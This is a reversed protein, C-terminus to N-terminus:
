KEVKIFIVSKSDKRVSGGCPGIADQIFEYGCSNDYDFLCGKCLYNGNNHQTAEVCKLTTLGFQFEEGIEFEKKAM